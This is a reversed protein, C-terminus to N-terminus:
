ETYLFLLFFFFKPGRFGWCVIVEYQLLYSQNYLSTGRGGELKNCPNDMVRVTYRERNM